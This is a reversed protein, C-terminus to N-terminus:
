NALRVCAPVICLYLGQLALATIPPSRNTARAHCSASLLNQDNPLLLLELARAFSRSDGDVDLVIQVKADKHVIALQGTDRGLGGWGEVVVVLVRGM